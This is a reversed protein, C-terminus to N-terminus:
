SLAIKKIYVWSVLIASIIWTFIPIGQEIFCFFIYDTLINLWREGFNMGSWIGWYYKNIGFLLLGSTFLIGLLYIWKLFKMQSTRDYLRIFYFSCSYIISIVFYIVFYPKYIFLLETDDPKIIQVPHYASFWSYKIAPILGIYSLCFIGLSLFLINKLNFPKV